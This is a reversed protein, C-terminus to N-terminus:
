CCVVVVQYLDLRGIAHVIRTSNPQSSDMTIMSTHPVWKKDQSLSFSLSLSLARARLLTQVCM